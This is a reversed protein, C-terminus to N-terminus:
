MPSDTKLFPSPISLAKHTETKIAAWQRRALFNGDGAAEEGEKESLQQILSSHLAPQQKM